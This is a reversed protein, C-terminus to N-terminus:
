AAITLTVRGQEAAAALEAMVSDRLDSLADHGVDGIEGSDALADLRTEVTDADVLDAWCARVQAQLIHQALERPSPAVLAPQEPALLGLAEEVIPAHRISKHVGTIRLVKGVRSDLDVVFVLEGGHARARKAAGVLVALGSSDLLEVGTLDIVQRYCAENILGILANRVDPAGYVDCQGSIAAVATGPAPKKIEITAYM